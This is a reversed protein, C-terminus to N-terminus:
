QRIVLITKKLVKCDAVYIKTIEIQFSYGSNYCKNPEPTMNEFCITNLYFELEVFTSLNWNIIFAKDLATFDTEAIQLLSICYKVTELETALFKVYLQGGCLGNDSYPFCSTQAVNYLIMQETDITTM